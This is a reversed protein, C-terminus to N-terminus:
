YIWSASLYIWSTKDLKNENQVICINHLQLWNLQLKKKMRFLTFMDIIIIDKMPKTLRSIKSNCIQFDALTDHLPLSMGSINIRCQEARVLIAAVAHACISLHIFLM